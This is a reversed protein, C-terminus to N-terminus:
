TNDSDTGNPQLDGAQPVGEAAPHETECIRHKPDIVHRDLLDFEILQQASAVNDAQM